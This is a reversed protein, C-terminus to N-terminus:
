SKINWRLKNVFVYEAIERKMYIIGDFSKKLNRYMNRSELHLPYKSHYAEDMVEEKISKIDPACLKGRCIYWIAM